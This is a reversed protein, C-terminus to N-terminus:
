SAGITPADTSVAHCLPCDFPYHGAPPAQTPPIAPSSLRLVAYGAGLLVVALVAAAVAKTRASMPTGTDETEEDVV